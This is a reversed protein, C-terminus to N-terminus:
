VVSKRDVNTWTTGGDSSKQWQYVPSTFPSNTLVASITTSAGTCITATSTASPFKATAQPTCASFVIDDIALDNGCQPQGGYFDVMELKLSTTGSPVAFSSIGYQQWKLPGAIAKALPLTDTTFSALIAGTNGDKINFTVKPYVYSAGCIPLTNSITNVNALWASFSYTSGACFGTVQQSFFLSAGTGANVLFMNGNPNGTHDGGNAWDGKGSNQVLPTVIYHGDTSVNDFIYNTTFGPPVTSKSTSAAGTGFDQKFVPALATSSCVGQAFSTIGMCICATLLLYKYRDIKM